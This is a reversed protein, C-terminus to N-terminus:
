GEGGGAAATPMAEAIRNLAGIAQQQGKEALLRDITPQDLGMGEYFVRTGVISPDTGAFKSWADMRSAVTPKSPDAFHAQVSRQRDDLESEAVGDRVAMMMRAVEEMAEANRRNMTEVELVLPDNTANLADSSTYTNSLVGLQALPVNTAGSFRQADSEYAMTFNEASTPSFQGVTPIDGNEDRTLALLSAMYAQFKAVPSPPLEVKNGDADVIDGDDDTEAGEPPPASFLDKAAGLIYRQPFTYFEGGIDMRMVDRMAKDVIGMLEPTIMSHGLPRDIDPDNVIVEMLPRGMPNREVECGWRPGRSYPKSYAPKWDERYLTLVADPMHVVYRCPRGERDVDSLVVGCAIRDEDKDWLACFQNASHVRVKVDPQGPAGKMVTIASVGYVLASSCAMQYLSRVRNDRVLADLSADRKGEFVFGDFVSRMAHAHVAKSCWGTVCVMQDYVDTVGKPISIGLNKVRSKMEYYERLLANRGRVSGWTDFLDEIRGRYMEPVSDLDPTDIPVAGFTVDQRM